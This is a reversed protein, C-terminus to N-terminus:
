GDRDKDNLLYTGPHILYKIKGYAHWSVRKTRIDKANHLSRSAQGILRRYEEAADLRSASSQATADIVSRWV